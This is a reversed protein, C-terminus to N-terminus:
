RRGSKNQRPIKYLRVIRDISAPTRGMKRAIFKTSFGTQRLEKLLAIEEADYASRKRAPPRMTRLGEAWFWKHFLLLDQQMKKYKTFEQEIIM